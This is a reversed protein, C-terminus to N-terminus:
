PIVGWLERNEEFVDADIRLADNLDKVPQGDAQILGHFRIAIVKSTVGALSDAWRKGAKRGPEDDHEAIRVRRGRFLELADPDISASAGLMSGVTASGARGEAWLCLFGALLDPGGECLLISGHAPEIAGAGVPWRANSGDLTLAKKLGGRFPFPEGDLRRAQACQRTSDTVIWSPHEKWEAVRLIGRDVALKLGEVGIGRIRRIAELDSATPVEFAPWQSRQEAAKAAKQPDKIAQTPVPLPRAKWAHRPANERPPCVDAWVLGGAALINENSCGAFCRLLIGGATGPRISLSPSRDPHAPCKISSARGSRALEVAEPLTRANM